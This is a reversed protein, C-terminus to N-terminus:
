SIIEPLYERGMQRGAQFVAAFIAEVSIMVSEFSVSFYDQEQDYSAAMVGPLHLM